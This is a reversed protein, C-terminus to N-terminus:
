NVLLNWPLQNFQSRYRLQSGAMLLSFINHQDSVPEAGALEQRDVLRASTLVQYEKDAGSGSQGAERHAVAPDLPHTAALIHANQVRGSSSPARCELLQPFAAGLTALFRRNVEEGSPDFFANAVMLGGPRLVRRVDQFFERTLLYDPTGDGQFLDVVVLDFAGARRRVFTRADEAYLTIGETRLGFFDRAARASQPNIEVVTVRRGAEQLRQPILGAGLGLVLVEQARPAYAGILRLMAPTHDLGNGAEDVANQLIGDQLYYLGSEEQGQWRVVKINGFGSHYEARVEMRGEPLSAHALMSFYVKQGSLLLVGLLGVGTALVALRWRDLRPIEPAGLTLLLTLLCLGLGSFIIAGWNSLHPIVAFATLLVGAVSGLTSLCFVRGAGADGGAWEGRGLAIVLPNLASLAVLPIALLMLGALFSGAVLNIGGLLPFVMPYLFAALILSLAALLPALLLLSILAAPPRGRSLRGGLGYGLALCVLTVSLIAAWIYLSVGFYPTLLRSALVELALTVAGTIFILVEFRHRRVPPAPQSRAPRM